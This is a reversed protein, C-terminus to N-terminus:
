DRSELENKESDTKESDSTTMTIDSPTTDSGSTLSKDESSNPVYDEDESEQEDDNVIFDHISDKSDVEEETSWTDSSGIDEFGGFALEYFEEYQVKSLNKVKGNEHLIVFINGFYLQKDIPPPLEHRNENGAKGDTWAFISITNDLYSFDCEREISNKGTIKLVSQPFKNVDLKNVDCNKTLRFEGIDGSNYLVIAKVVDNSKSKKPM